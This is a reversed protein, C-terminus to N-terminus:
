HEPREGVFGRGCGRRVLWTAGGATLIDVLEFYWLPLIYKFIARLSEKSSKFISIKLRILCSLHLNHLWFSHILRNDDSKPGCVYEGM